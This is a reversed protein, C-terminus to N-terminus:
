NDIEWENGDDDECVTTSGNNDCNSADIYGGKPFYITASDEELDVDLTYCNGASGGCVQKTANGYYGIPQDNSEDNTTTSDDYLVSATSRLEERAEAEKNLVREDNGAWWWWVFGIVVVVWIWGYDHETNNEM